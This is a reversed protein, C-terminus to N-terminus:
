GIQRFPGNLPSSWFGRFLLVDKGTVGPDVGRHGPKKDAVAEQGRQLGLVTRQKVWMEFSCGELLTFNQELRAVIDRASRSEHFLSAKPPARDKGGRRILVTWEPLSAAWTRESGSVLEARSKQAASLEPLDTRRSSRATPM